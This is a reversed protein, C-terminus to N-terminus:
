AIGPLMMTQDAPRAPTPAVVDVITDQDGCIAYGEDSDIEECYFVAKMLGDELFWEPDLVTNAECGPCKPNTIVQRWAEFAQKRWANLDKLRCSTCGFVPEGHDCSPIPSLDVPPIAM